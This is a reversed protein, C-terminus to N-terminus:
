KKLFENFEKEPISAEKKSRKVLANRLSKLGAKIKLKRLLVILEQHTKKFFSKGVNELFHYQCILDLVDDFM